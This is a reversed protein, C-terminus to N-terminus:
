WVEGSITHGTTGAAARISVNGNLPPISFTQGPQISATTGTGLLNPVGVMDIFLPENATGVPNTIFGGSLPGVALLTSNGSGGLAVANALLPRPVYAPM